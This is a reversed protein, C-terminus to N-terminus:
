PIVSVGLELDGVTFFDRRIEPSFVVEEAVLDTRTQAELNACSMRHPIISDGKSMMGARSIEIVKSAEGRGEVRYEVRLVAHDAEAVFFTVQQYSSGYLPRVVIEHARERGLEVVGSSTVEFDDRDFKEMDELAFDTGFWRDSLHYASVRRVRRLDPSYVFFDPTPSRDITLFSTGRLSEPHTLIGRVHLVGDYEKSAVFMRITQVQGGPAHITFAYTRSTDVGTRKRIADELIAAPELQHAQVVSGLGLIVAFVAVKDFGM